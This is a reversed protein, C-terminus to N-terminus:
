PAPPCTTERSTDVGVCGWTSSVNWKSVQCSLQTLLSLPVGPACWSIPRTPVDGLRHQDRDLGRQPEVLEFALM